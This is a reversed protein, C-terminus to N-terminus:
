LLAIAIGLMGSLFAVFFFRYVIQVEGWYLRQFHHHIPAMKFVRGKEKDGFFTTGYRFGLRQIIVSLAETVFISGIIPLLLWQESMLAVIALAAGIAMSGTDGMFVQAPNANFWLFGFLAGVMIFCFASLWTQGQLFAIVGYAGFAVVSVNGALGDLGDTFNVANATGVIIFMAVPIYFLGLNLRFVLGPIIVNHIDLVFYIALVIILTIIFQGILKSRETLGEALRGGPRIGQWDDIAGLLAFLFMGVVPVLISRGEPAGRLVNVINIMLTTIIAPVIFLIGGFTPTGEKVKHLKEVGESGESEFVRIKKGLGLIHLMEIFPKGWILTVLCTVTGAMLQFPM